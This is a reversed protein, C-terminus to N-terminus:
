KRYRNGSKINNYAIAIAINPNIDYGDVHNDYGGDELQRTFDVEFCKEKIDCEDMDYNDGFHIFFDWGDNILEEVKNQSEKSITFNIM